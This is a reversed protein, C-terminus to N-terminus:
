RLVARAFLALGAVDLALMGGALAFTMSWAGARAARVFLVTAALSLAITVIRLPTVLAPDGAVFDRGARALVRAVAAREAIERLAALGGVALVLCGWATLRERGFGKRLLAVISFSALVAILCGNVIAAVHEVAEPTAGRMRPAAWLFAAPLALVAVFVLRDVLM